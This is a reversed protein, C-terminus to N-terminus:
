PLSYLLAPNRWRFTRMWNLDYPLPLKRCFLLCFARLLFSHYFLKIMSHHFSFFIFWFETQPHKSTLSLWFLLLTIAHFHLHSVQLSLFYLPSLSIHFQVYISCHSQNILMRFNETPVFWYRIDIIFFIAVIIIIIIWTLDLSFFDLRGYTIKTEDRM